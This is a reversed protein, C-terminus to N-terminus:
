GAQHLNQFIDTAYEGSELTCCDELYLYYLQDDSTKLMFWHENDTAPFSVPGDEPTLTVSDSHRSKERYVTVDKLIDHSQYEKPFDETNIYYWNQEVLDLSNNELKYIVSTNATELLSIPLDAMLTGDGNIKCSSNGLLDSISGLYIFNGRNM